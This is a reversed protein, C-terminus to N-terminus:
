SAQTCATPSGTSTALRPSTMVGGHFGIAEIDGLAGPMIESLPLFDDNSRCQSLTSRSGSLVARLQKRAIAPPGGPRDRLNTEAIGRTPRAQRPETLRQAPSM